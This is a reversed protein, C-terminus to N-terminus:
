ASGTFGIRNLFQRKLLAHFKQFSITSPERVCIAKHDAAAPNKLTNPSIDHNSDSCLTKVPSNHHTQQKDVTSQTNANVEECDASRLSVSCVGNCSLNFLRASSMALIPDNAPRSRNTASKILNKTCSPVPM